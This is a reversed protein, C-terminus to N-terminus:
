WLTVNQPQQSTQPLHHWCSERSSIYHGGPEQHTFVALGTGLYSTTKQWSQINSSIFFGSPFFSARYGGHPISRTSQDLRHTMWWNKNWIKEQFYLYRLFSTDLQVWVTSSQWLLDGNQPNFLLFRVAQREIRINEHTQATCLPALKKAITFDQLIINLPTWQM